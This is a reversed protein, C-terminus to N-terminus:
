GYILRRLQRETLTPAAFVRQDLEETLLAFIEANKAGRTKLEAHRRRVYDEVSEAHFALVDQVVRAAEAASLGTSAVIHDVLAADASTPVLLM